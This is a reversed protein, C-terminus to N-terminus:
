AGARTKGLYTRVLPAVRGRVLAARLLQAEDPVVDLLFREGRGDGERVAVPIGDRYLIRNTALAPVADGPTIIGVLNLPDAGSLAVLAGSAEQRSV